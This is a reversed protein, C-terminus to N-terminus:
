PRRPSELVQSILHTLDQYKPDAQSVAQIADFVQHASYKHAPYEPVVPGLGTVRTPPTQPEVKITPIITGDQFVPGSPPAVFNPHNFPHTGGDNSVETEDKNVVGKLYGLIIALKDDVESGGSLRDDIRDGLRKEIEDIRDRLKQALDEGIIPEVRDQVRDEVRDLGERIRKRGFKTWIFWGVFSLVGLGSLTGLINRQSAVTKVDDQQNIVRDNLINLENNIETIRDDRLQIVGKLNGVETERKGITEILQEIKQENQSGNLKLENLENTLVIIETTKTTLFQELQSKEDALINRQEELLAVQGELSTIKSRLENLEAESVGGYNDGRYPDVLFSGGFNGGFSYANSYGLGGYGGYSGSLNPLAPILPNAPQRVEVDPWRIIKVGLPLNQAEMQGDEIVVDYYNGDTGLAKELPSRTVSVTAIPSYSDPVTRPAQFNGTLANYLRDVPIAGGQAIDYGSILNKGNKGIRWTVIAAVRTHFEGKSDPVNVMLGSGSQGGTPPPSFLVRSGEDKLVHGEWAMAWRSEPCGASQVYAHKKIDYGKPMLPIIRPKWSLFSKEPVTVLAFDIDTQKKHATWIVNGRIPLTKGGKSFFEVTAKDSTGVVHASTLIYYNANRKAVVTGSGYAGATGVRCTSELIQNLSLPEAFAASCLMLLAACAALIAKKM